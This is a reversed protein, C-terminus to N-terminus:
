AKVRGRCWGVWWVCCVVVLLLLLVLVVLQLQALAAAPHRTQTM